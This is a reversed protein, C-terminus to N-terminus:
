MMPLLGMETATTIGFKFTPITDELRLLAENLTFILHISPDMKNEELPPYRLGMDVIWGSPIM